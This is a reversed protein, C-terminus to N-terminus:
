RKVLPIPQQEERYPRTADGVSSDTPDGTKAGAGIKKKKKLWWFVAGALLAVGCVCGVVIGAIAGGSLRRHKSRYPDPWNPVTTGPKRKSPGGCFSPIDSKSNAKSDFLSHLAPTCPPNYNSTINIRDVNKIFPLDVRTTSTLKPIINVLM